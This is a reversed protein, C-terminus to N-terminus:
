VSFMRNTGFQAVPKPNDDRPAESWAVVAQNHEVEGEGDDVPRVQSTVLARMTVRHESATFHEVAMSCAFSHILFGALGCMIPAAMGLNCWGSAIQEATASVPGWLGRDFAGSCDCRVKPGPEIIRGDVVVINTPACEHSMDVQQKTACNWMPAGNGHGTLGRQTWLLCKEKKTDQSYGYCDLHLSCVMECEDLADMSRFSPEEGTPVICKGTFGGHYTYLVAQAERIEEDTFNAFLPSMTTTTVQMSENDSSNTDNSQLLRGPTSANMSDNTGDDNMDTMNGNDMTDNAATNNGDVVDNVQPVVVPDSQPDEAPCELGMVGFVVVLVLCIMILAGALLGRRRKADSFTEPMERPGRQPAYNSVVVILVGGLFAGLCVFFILTEMPTELPCIQVKLLPIADEGELVEALADACPPRANPGTYRPATSLSTLFALVLTLPSDVDPAICSPGTFYLGGGNFIFTVETGLAQLLILASHIALVGYAVCTCKCLKPIPMRIALMQAIPLFIGGLGAFLAMNFRAVAIDGAAGAWRVAEALALNFVGDSFAVFALRVRLGFGLKSFILLVVAVFCMFLMLTFAINKAPAILVTLVAVSAVRFLTVSPLKETLNQREILVGLYFILLAAVALLILPVAAVVVGSPSKSEGPQSYLVVVGVLIVLVGLFTLLSIVRVINKQWIFDAM